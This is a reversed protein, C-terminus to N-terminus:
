RESFFSFIRFKKIWESVTIIRLLCLHYIKSFIIKDEEFYFIFHRAKAGIAFPMTGFVVFFVTKLCYKSNKIIIWTTDMIWTQYNDM